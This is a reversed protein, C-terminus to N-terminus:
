LLSYPSGYMRVIVTNNCVVGQWAEGCPDGGNAVWGPIAPLGLSVYLNNMAAVSEVSFLASILTNGLQCFCLILFSCLNCLSLCKKKMMNKLPQSVCM